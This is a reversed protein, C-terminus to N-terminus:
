NIQVSTTVKDCDMASSFQIEVDITEQAGAKVKSQLRVDHGPSFKTILPPASVFQIKPVYAKFEWAKMEIVNLCGTNAGPISGLTLEDYPYLLNKVITGKEFAALMLNNPDSCNFNYTTTENNNHYVLWVSQNNALSQSGAFESRVVSWIGTETTTNGSGPYQIGRTQNSLQQLYWGDNLVPYQERLHYMHRIINRIPHSPDRHDFGVTNDKCGNRAADLPMQYYQTSGLAYCGHIQWAISSTMPQRGYIYNSATSDLVYFGRHLYILVLVQGNKRNLLSAARGRLIISTYRALFYNNRFIRTANERCWENYCAM